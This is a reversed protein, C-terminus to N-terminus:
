GFSFMLRLGWASCRSFLSNFCALFMQVASFGIEQSCISAEPVRQAEESPSSTSDRNYPAIYELAYYVFHFSILSLRVTEIAKRHEVLPKKDKIEGGNAWAKILDRQRQLKKIERKLTDEQKEKQAQNTAQQIKEFTQEFAQIGEAVRKFCREVEQQLKRQAM